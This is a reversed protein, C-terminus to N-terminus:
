QRDGARRPGRDLDAQFGLEGELGKHVWDFALYGSIDTDYYVEPIGVQGGKFFDGNLRAAAQVTWYAGKGYKGLLWQQAVAADRPDGELSYLFAGAFGDGTSGAKKLRAYDTKAWSERLILEYLRDRAEPPMFYPRKQEQATARQNNTNVLILAALLGTGVARRTLCM